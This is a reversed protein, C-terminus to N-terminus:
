NFVLISNGKEGNSSNNNICTGNGSNNNNSSNSINNINTLSSSLSSSSHSIKFYSTSTTSAVNDPSTNESNENKNNSSSIHHVEIQTDQSLIPPSNPTSKITKVNLTNNLDANTTTAATPTVHIVNIPTPISDSANKNQHLSSDYDQLQNMFILNPGIIPRFLKVRDYADNLNMNYRSMLYAIVITPSRSIGAQCHVLVKQNNLKAQDIFNSAEGFHNKLNQNECDNVAIRKHVFNSTGNVDNNKSNTLNYFPINKTVNLIYYIGKKELNECNKADSENGLFLFPMIETMVANDIASQRQDEKMEKIYDQHKSFFSRQEEELNKMTCFEPFNEFFSKFGGKLIKCDRKYGSQKINEQVIKLPNQDSQLDNLDSTTDDYLVIMNNPPNEEESTRILSSAQSKACDVHNEATSKPVYEDFKNKIEESSILDKVTLKRTQLRKKTLKDRCNLHVSDKIHKLNFDNYTRCDLLILLFKSSFEYFRNKLETPDIFQSSTNGSNSMQSTLTPPKTATPQAVHIVPIEVPQPTEINIMSRLNNVLNSNNISTSQQETSKKDLDAPGTINTFQHSASCISSITSSSSSPSSSSIQESSSSETSSDSSLSFFSKSESYQNNLLMASTM